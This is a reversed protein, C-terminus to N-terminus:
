LYVSIYIKAIGCLGLLLALQVESYYLQTQIIM